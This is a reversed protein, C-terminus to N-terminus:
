ESWRRSRECMTREQKKEGLAWYQMKASAMMQWGRVGIGKLFRCHSDKCSVHQPSRGALKTMVDPLRSLSVYFLWCPIAHCVFFGAHQCVLIEVRFGPYTCNYDIISIIIQLYNYQIVMPIHDESVASLNCQQPGTKGTGKWTSVGQSTRYSKLRWGPLDCYATCWTKKSVISTVPIQLSRLCKCWKCWHGAM